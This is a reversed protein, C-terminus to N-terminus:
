ALNQPVDLDFRGAAGPIVHSDAQGARLEVERLLVRFCEPQVHDFVCKIVPLRTDQPDGVGSAPGFFEPEIIAPCREAIVTVRLM